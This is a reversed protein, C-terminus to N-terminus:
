SCEWFLHGSSEVDECCEEYCGDTVIKRRLLNDKTPLINKYSRWTFHLVKHPVNMQWIYKWFKRLNIDDLVTGMAAGEQMEMAIKYASKLSFLGNKTPAWVLRDGLLNTSLATGLIINVEHPLFLQQLLM